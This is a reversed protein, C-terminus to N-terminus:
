GAQLDRLACLVALFTKGTGAPGVAMVMDSKIMAEVYKKQTPTQARVPKGTATKFVIEQGGDDARAPQAAGGGERRDNAIQDRLDELYAMAQDVKKAHGRVALTSSRAFVQVGFRKELEKLNSDQEGCLLLTEEMDGLIM